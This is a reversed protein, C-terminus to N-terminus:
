IPVESAIRTEVYKETIEKNTVEDLELDEPVEPVEFLLLAQFAKWITWFSELTDPIKETDLNNSSHRFM